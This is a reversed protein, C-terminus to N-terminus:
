TTADTAGLGVLAAVVSALAANGGKSGTLTVGALLQQSSGGDHTHNGPSAQNPSSGLSHHQAKPSGDLDSNEHFENVEKATPTTKKAVPDLTPM